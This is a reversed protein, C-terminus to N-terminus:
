GEGLDDLVMHVILEVLKGTQNAKEIMERSIIDNKYLIIHGNNDLLDRGARHGEIYRIKMQEVEDIDLRISGASRTNTNVTSRPPPSSVVNQRSKESSNENTNSVAIESYVSNSSIHERQMSEQPLQTDVAILNDPLPSSGVTTETFWAQVYVEVDKWIYKAM